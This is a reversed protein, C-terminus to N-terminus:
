IIVNVSSYKIANNKECSAVLWITNVASDMKHMNEAMETIYVKRQPGMCYRYSIRGAMELLYMDM